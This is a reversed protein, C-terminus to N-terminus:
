FSIQYQLRIESDDSNARAEDELERYDFQIKHNHKNFFYNVAVGDESRHDKARSKNPELESVRVAVEWKQPVIFYGAQVTYGSDDFDSQNNTRDNEREFVEAFLSFGKFKFMLDYGFITQENKHAPTAGAAAIERVNSEYDVGLTLLPKTSSEFDSMSLKTDGWPSWALRANLQLDDNDNRSVNRGNGNFLGIRWDLKGEHPTGWLQVGIDRGRAFAGSVNTREVFQQSGSSTLEERGFPVRFQGAKFMFARKGNTFDYNVNLDQLSNTTDAWNLEAEYTLNPTYAWGEMKTEARRIRFSDREPGATASNSDLDESTLRLQIRTGIKMEFNKAKVTTKGDKWSVDFPLVPPKPTARDYAPLNHKFNYLDAATENEAVLTKGGEARGILTVSTGLEGTENFRKLAEPTNFVYIRGDKEIEQYYLGMIQASAATAGCLALVCLAAALIRTKFM